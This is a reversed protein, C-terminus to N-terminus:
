DRIISVITGPHGRALGDAITVAAGLQGALAAVLGSGLELQAAGPGASFGTGDDEVSLVWGSAVTSFSIGIRGGDRNGAVAHQLANIVLETVILGLSVCSQEDMISDDATASLTLRSFDTIMAAAICRCLETLYGRVGVRGTATIALQKQLSAIAMIRHHADQLHGRTEKSEIQRANHLLVSAIIQLSNAIQHQLVQMLMRAQEGTQQEGTQQEGQRSAPLDTISVLMRAANEDGAFSLRQVKISLRRVPEDPRVLVLEHAEGSWNEDAAAQLIRLLQPDNWEGGGLKAFHVLGAAPPTLAFARYFSASAAVVLLSDDLLLIPVLSSSILALALASM